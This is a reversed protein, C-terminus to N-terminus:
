RLVGLVSEPSMQTLGSGGSGMVTWGTLGGM